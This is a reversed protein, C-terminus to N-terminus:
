LHKEARLIHRKGIPGTLRKVEFGAQRLNNKVIGKSSYTTLIGENNLSDFINKFNEFSWLEPQTEPSFADFYILDFKDTFIYQNLDLNLKKVTFNSTLQIKKNWECSHLIDFFSNENVNLQECYNLKSTINKDLPFLEVAEYNININSRKAELYTLLANLGTGFGVEFINIHNLKCKKFGSEIFVHLSENIAGHSSHYSENFYENFVTQSGDQTTNIKLMTILFLYFFRFM